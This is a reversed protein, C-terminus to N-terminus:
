SAKGTYEAIEVSTILIDEQPRMAGEEGTLAAGTIGDLIDYGEILQGFVTIQQSYNPIGGYDLFAQGVLNQTDTNNESILGERIEDTMEISDVVLFRSGTYFEQKNFLIRFFGSESKSTLACLAGRLPWLKPSLEQTIQECAGDPEAITGDPNESGASFFIDQEVRFVYTNDYHGSQALSIFNAVTQPCEDPYLVYVMDGATTHMVATPTGIEPEDLQILAIQDPEIVATYNSMLSYYGACAIALLLTFVCCFILGKVLPTRNPKGGAGNLRM